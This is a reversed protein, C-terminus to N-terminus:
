GTDPPDVDGAGLCEEDQPIRSVAGGLDVLVASSPAKDPDFLIETAPDRGYTTLTWALGKGDCLLVGVLVGIIQGLM